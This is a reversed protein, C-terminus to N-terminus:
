CGEVLTLHNSTGCSVLCDWSEAVVLGGKGVVGLEGLSAQDVDCGLWTDKARKCDGQDYKGGEDDELTDEHETSDEPGTLDQCDAVFQEKFM